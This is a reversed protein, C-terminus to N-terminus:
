QKRRALPVEERLRPLLSVMMKGIAEMGRFSREEESPIYKVKGRWELTGEDLTEQWLRVTFLHAHLQPSQEEM